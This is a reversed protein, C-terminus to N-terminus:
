AKKKQLLLRDLEAKIEDSINLGNIVVETDAVLRALRSRGPFIMHAHFGETVTAADGENIGVRFSPPVEIGTIFQEFAVIEKALMNAVLVTEMGLRTHADPNNAPSVLVLHVGKSVASQRSEKVDYPFNEGSVEVEGQYFVEPNGCITHGNPTLTNQGRDKEM